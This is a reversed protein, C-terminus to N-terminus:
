SEGTQHFTAIRYIYIYVRDQGGLSLRHSRKIRKAISAVEQKRRAIRRGVDAVAKRVLGTKTTALIVVVAVM